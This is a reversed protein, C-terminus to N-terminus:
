KPLLPFGTPLGRHREESHQREGGFDSQSSSVNALHNTMNWNMVLVVFQEIGIGVFGCNLCLVCDMLIIGFVIFEYALLLQKSIGHM